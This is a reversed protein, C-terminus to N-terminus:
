SDATGWGQVAVAAAQVYKKYKEEAIPVKYAYDEGLARIKRHHVGGRANVDDIFALMGDHYPRGVDATPGTLDALVGVVIASDRTPDDRRTDCAVLCLSCLSVLLTRAAATFGDRRPHSTM